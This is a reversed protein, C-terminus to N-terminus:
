DEGCGEVIGKGLASGPVSTIVQIAAILAESLDVNDLRWRLLWDSVLVAGIRSLTTMQANL